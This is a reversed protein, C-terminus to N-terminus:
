PMQVESATYHFLVTKPFAWRQHPPKLNSFQLTDICLSRSSGTFPCEWLLFTWEPRQRTTEKMIYFSASLLVILLSTFVSVGSMYITNCLFQAAERPLNSLPIYKTRFLLINLFTKWSFINYWKFKCRFYSFYDSVPISIIFFSFLHPLPSLHSLAQFKSGPVM